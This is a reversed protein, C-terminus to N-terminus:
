STTFIKRTTKCARRGSAGEDVGNALQDLAAHIVTPDLGGVAGDAVTLGDAGVARSVGEVLKDLGPGVVLGVRLCSCLKYHLCTERLM